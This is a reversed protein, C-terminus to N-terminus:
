CVLIRFAIHNMVNTSIFQIIIVPIDCLLAGITCTLSLSFFLTLFFSTLIYGSDGDYDYDDDDPYSNEINDYSVRVLSAITM